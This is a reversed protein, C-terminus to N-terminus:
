SNGYLDGMAEAVSLKGFFEQMRPILVYAYFTFM